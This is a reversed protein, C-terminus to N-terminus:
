RVRGRPKLPLQPVEPAALRAGDYGQVEGFRAGTMWEERAQRIDEDSRGIFNWWMVIHEEFPEGGLLLVASDTRALLPLERRGCGLYLMSGPEVRVGDVDVSGTMALVAYEFGPELPLRHSAGQRLTLDAGVLPTYATGPSAAGDLSGMIVTAHLGSASVTPLEAHHEFAPATNRHADPLAVWLQAGHLLRAHERPSEESHAIARGSTMLGLEYPRVTQLSGLSDRHLVEGEHLWSVTQLGMHPHPPVQMGPEDAIDDPGYHDVFCWAGVMRRGLNPLLRRVETSEGLRVQRGTTLEKVPGTGAEGGCRTPSPKLDLNSM